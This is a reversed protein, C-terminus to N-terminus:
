HSPLPQQQAPSEVKKGAKNSSDKSERDSKQDGPQRRRGRRAHFEVFTNKLPKAPGSQGNLVTGLETQRAALNTQAV